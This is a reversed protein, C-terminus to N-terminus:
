MENKEKLKTTTTSSGTQGISNEVDPNASQIIPIHTGREKAHATFQDESRSSQDSESKM